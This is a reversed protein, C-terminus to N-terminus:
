FRSPAIRVLLTAGQASAAQEAATAIADATEIGCGPPVRLEVAAFRRAGARRTRLARFRAGHSELHQLNQQLRAIDADPWAADLLGGLSSALLRWSVWALNLGVLLAAAADVSGWGSFAALAVGAIVGATIWVDAMLHHGDAVAALSRHEQGVRLLLRAVALNLLAALASLAAGLGVPQLAQPHLLREAAAFVIGAAALAVLGGGFASSFYEAKGYGYPYATTPSRRAYWVMALAFAASAVNVLSHLADSLFGVSGSTWWAVGKLGAVALSAAVSLALAQQPNSIVVPRMKDGPSM